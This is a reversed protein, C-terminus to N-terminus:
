CRPKLAASSNDPLIRNAGLVANAGLNAKNNKGLAVNTLVQGAATNIVDGEGGTHNGSGKDEAARAGTVVGGDGTIEVNDVVEGDGPCSCGLGDHRQIFAIDLSYKVNGGAPLGNVNGESLEGNM